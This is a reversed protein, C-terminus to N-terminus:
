RVQSLGYGWYFSSLVTGMTAEDLEARKAMETFAISFGVREVYMFLTALFCAFVIQYRSDLKSKRYLNKIVLSKLQSRDKSAM